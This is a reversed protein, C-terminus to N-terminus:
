IKETLRGNKTRRGAEPAFVYDVFMQVAFACLLGLSVDVISHQKLFMTSLIILGSLVGCAFRVKKWRRLQPSSNLALFVAVSNFVHISPLINTPTDTAYLSRVLRTFVNNNAFVEPRLDQKNPYICSVILFLTMGIALSCSLKYYERRDRCFFIFWCVACAIYAFWLDYPIIFYECFPIMDDIVSHIVHYHRHGANELIFFGLMYFAMYLVMWLGHSYQKFFNRVAKM